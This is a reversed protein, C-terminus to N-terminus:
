RLRYRIREAVRIAERYIGRERADFEPDSNNLLLGARDSLYDALEAAIPDPVGDYFVSEGRGRKVVRREPLELEAEMGTAAPDLFDDWVRGPMQVDIRM